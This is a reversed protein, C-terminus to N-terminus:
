SSSAEARRTRSRHGPSRVLACTPAPVSSARMRGYWGPSSTRWRSAAALARVPSGCTRTCTASRDSVVHSSSSRLVDIPKPM